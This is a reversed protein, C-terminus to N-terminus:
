RTDADKQASKEGAYWRLKRTNVWNNVCSHMRVITARALGCGNAVEPTPSLCM